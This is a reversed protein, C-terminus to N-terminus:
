VESISTTRNKRSASHISHPHLRADVATGASMGSVGTGVPAGCSCTWSTIGEATRSLLIVAVGTGVAEGVALLTGVAVGTGVAEGVALLTGVAVGVGDGV